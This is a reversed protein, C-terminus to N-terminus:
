KLKKKSYKNNFVSQVFMGRKCTQQLRKTQVLKQKEEQRNKAQSFCRTLTM